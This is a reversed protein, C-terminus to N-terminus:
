IQYTKQGEARKCRGEESRHIKIKDKITNEVQQLTMIIKMKLPLKKLKTREKPAVRLVSTIYLLQKKTLRTIRESLNPDKSLVKFLGRPKYGPRRYFKRRRNRRCRALILILFLVVEDIPPAM